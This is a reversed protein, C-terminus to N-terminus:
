ERSLRMRLRLVSCCYMPAVASIRKHPLLASGSVCRRASPMSSSLIGARTLSSYSRIVFQQIEFEFLLKKWCAVQGRVLRDVAVTSLCKGQPLVQSTASTEETYSDHQPEHELDGKGGEEWSTRWRLAAQEADKKSPFQSSSVAKPKHGRARTYWLRLRCKRTKNDVVYTPNSAKRWVREPPSSSKM